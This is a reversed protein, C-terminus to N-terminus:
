PLCCVTVAEVTAEGTPAGGSPACSGLVSSQFIPQASMVNTPGSGDICGQAFGLTGVFGVCSQMQFLDVTTLGMCSNGAPAGCGCASCSRTDAVFRTLSQPVSYDGECPANGAQFVCIDGPETICVGEPCEAPMPACGALAGDLVVPSLSVMVNSAACSGGNSTSLETLMGSQSLTAPINTCQGHVVTFETNPGSACGLEDYLTFKAACSGVPTGCTCSSCSAPDATVSAAAVVVPQEASACTEGPNFVLPGQWGVPAAPACDVPCPGVPAGADGANGQGAGGAGGSSQASGTSGSQPTEGSLPDRDGFDDLGLLAGCGAAFALLGFCALERMM